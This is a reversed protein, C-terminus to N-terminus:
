PRIYAANVQTFLEVAYRGQERSGQSSGKTGGFSVPLGRERDAPEGHRHHSALALLCIAAAISWERIRPDPGCNV